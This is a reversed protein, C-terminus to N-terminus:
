ICFDSKTVFTPMNKRSQLVTHIYGDRRLPDAVRLSAETVLKVSREVAQTHCPLKLIEFNNFNREDEVISMLQEESLSKTVPPEDIKVRTWVIIEYYTKADFRIKPVIFKRVVNSRGMKRASMIRNFALERVCRKSDCLMAILINEPHGYFANRQISEDVIKRYKPKLYRTFEIFNFLNGTGNVCKNNMKIRFWSPAYARMIFFVITNLETSPHLTAVYLRLVSNALTLWRSHCINGPYRQALSQSCIGSSVAECMEYLYQQDTSLDKTRMEHTLKPLHTQIRQFKVVPSKIGRKLLSGIKGSFTKPGSTEGDVFIFLAKLPLEIFHLQCILWQLPKGLHLEVLRVVGGKNGTNGVTGDCGMAQLSQDIYNSIGLAITKSTSNSLPLHGIYKEGPEEILSVHEEKKFAQRQVLDTGQLMYMTKDKRGDFYLALVNHRKQSGFEKRLSGMSRKVKCRNIVFENDIGPFVLGAVQLTATSIAAAALPSVGYREAVKAIPTVDLTNNRGRLDDRDIVYEDDSDESENDSEESDIEFDMESDVDVALDTSVDPSLETSLDAPSDNGDNGRKRDSIKLKREKRQDNLFDRSETTLEEVCACRGACKCAAIDFLKRIENKFSRLKNKFAVTKRCKQNAKALGSYEKHLQQWKKLVTRKHLTPIDAYSWIDMVDSVITVNCSKDDPQLYLYYRLIDEKTPLVSDRLKRKRGVLCINTKIKRM